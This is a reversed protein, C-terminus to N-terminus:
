PCLADAKSHPSLIFKKPFRAIVGCSLFDSMILIHDHVADYDEIDAAFDGALRDSAEKLTTDLHERMLARTKAQPWYKPNAASLFDAIEQGNAYWAAVAAALRDQDGAKAAVLVDVAGLIHQRLLATLENGAAEGFYPKFANGLDVQNCLLRQETPELDPLNAAFSVITLRTWTIHDEWLKRMQDHFVVAERSM